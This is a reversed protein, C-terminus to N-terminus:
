LYPDDATIIRRRPSPPREPKAALPAPVTVAPTPATESRTQPGGRFRDLGMMKAAAFAMAEADLYDHARGRKVWTWGGGPKRTRAENVVQRCYAEDIGTFVHWGGPQDKPWRIRSHM